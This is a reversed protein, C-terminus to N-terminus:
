SSTRSAWLAAWPSKRASIRAPGHVVQILFAASRNATAILYKGPSAMPRRRQHAPDDNKKHHDAARGTLKESSPGRGLGARGMMNEFAEARGPGDCPLSAWSVRARYTGAPCNWPGVWPNSPGAWTNNGVLIHTHMRQALKKVNINTKRHKKGTQIGHSLQKRGM